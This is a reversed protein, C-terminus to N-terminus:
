MKGLLDRFTNCVLHKQANRKASDFIAKVADAQLRESETMERVLVDSAAGVNLVILEDMEKAELWKIVSARVNMGPDCQVCHIGEEEFDYGLYSTGQITYIRPRAAVIARVDIEESIGTYKGKYKKKSKKDKAM